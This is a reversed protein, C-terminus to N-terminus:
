YKRAFQSILLSGNIALFVKLLTYFAPPYFSPQPPISTRKTDKQELSLQKFNKILYNTFTEKM